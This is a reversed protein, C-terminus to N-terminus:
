NHNFRVFPADVLKLDPRVPMLIEDHILCWVANRGYAPIEWDKLLDRLHVTGRFRSAYTRLRDNDSDVSCKLAM